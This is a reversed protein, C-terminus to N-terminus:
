TRPRCSISAGRRGRRQAQRRARCQPDVQLPGQLEQQLRRQLRAEAGGPVVGARRGVRRHHLPKLRALADVPKQWRRPASSRSSSSCRPPSWGSWRRRRAAHAAVARRHGRGDDYQENGDLTARYDGADRDLVAAIRTLRDLDAAVNGGVKLKYYRCGYHRVVEELTEPLGDDVREGPKQDAAVIPDVLGVTHRVAIDSGPRLGGLFRPM